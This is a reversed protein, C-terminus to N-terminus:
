ENGCYSVFELSWRCNANNSIYMAQINSDLAVLMNECVCVITDCWDHNVCHNFLVYEM